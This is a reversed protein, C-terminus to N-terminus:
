CNIAESTQKCAMALNKVVLRSGTVIGADLVDCLELLKRSRAKHDQIQLAKAVVEHWLLQFGQSEAWLKDTTTPKNMGAWIMNKLM